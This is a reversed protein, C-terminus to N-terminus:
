KGENIVTYKEQFVKPPVIQYKNDFHKIIYDNLRVTEMGDPSIIQIFPETVDGRKILLGGCWNSVEVCNKDSLQYAEFITDKKCVKMIKVQKM